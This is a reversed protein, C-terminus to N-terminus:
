AEDKLDCDSRDPLDTGPDDLLVWIYPQPESLEDVSKESVKWM